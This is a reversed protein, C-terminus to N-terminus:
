ATAAFLPGADHTEPLDTEVTGLDARIRARAMDVDKPNLEILVSDRGLREAVLGVTGSGGFCDLVVAPVRAPIVRNLRSGCHSCQGEGPVGESLGPVDRSLDTKPHRRAQAQGDSRSERTSQRAPRREQPPRNRGKDAVSGPSKGDGASAGDCVRVREREPPRTDIDAQLGQHYDDLGKDIEQAGIDLPKRLPSQLISGTRGNTPVSEQVPSVNHGAIEAPKERLLDTHLPSTDKEVSPIEDRLDSMGANTGAQKTGHTSDVVTDCTACLLQDCACGPRWGTTTTRKELRQAYGASGHELHKRDISRPGNTTRNGPNDYAVDVERVWPAGCEACCGKASTGALICPEVLKIPFTAFHAGPYPQTNVDLVLPAGDPSSILGHPPALSQFCLDGNRMNRGGAIQEDREMRDWRDNFGAHRRGHGRQKDPKARDPGGRVMKRIDLTQPNQTSSRDRDPNWNPNGDNQALRDLSSQKVPTRVAEADYFYHASRTLLFVYEVASAPRDTVSEPMAARKIWPMQSRIWWGDDQLALAVRAPMMCLDKPKLGDSVTSFPKDRFTRDDNGAAKTDAASRGNPATAYCDGLNLWVTGDKRLIRRVERFVAVLAEIHEGLTPEM